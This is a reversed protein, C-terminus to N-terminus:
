SSFTIGDVIKAEDVASIAAEDGLSFISGANNTLLVNALSVGDEM